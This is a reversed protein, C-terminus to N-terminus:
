LDKKKPTFLSTIWTLIAWIWALLLQLKSKKVVEPNRDEQTGLAHKLKSKWFEDAKRQEEKLKKKVVVLSKEIEEKNEKAFDKAKQLDECAAELDGLAEHCRARRFYAKSHKPDMKLVKDCYEIAKKAKNERLLCAAVNLWLPMRVQDVAERHSDLLEFNYSLEEFDAHYLGKKFDNMAEGYQEQKFKLKGTEWYEKAREIRTEFVYSREETFLEESDEEIEDGLVENRDDKPNQLFDQSKNTENENDVPQGEEENPNHIMEFSESEKLVSQSGGDESSM